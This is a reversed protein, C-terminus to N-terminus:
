GSRARTPRFFALVASYRRMSQFVGDLGRKPVSNALLDLRYKLEKMYSPSSAKPFGPVSLTNPPGGPFLLSGLRVTMACVPSGSGGLPIAWGGRCWWHRAVVREQLGSRPLYRRRM